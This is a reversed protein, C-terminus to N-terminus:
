SFLVWGPVPRTWDIREGNMEASARDFAVRRMRHVETLHADSVRAFGGAERLAAERAAYVREAPTACADCVDDDFYRVTAVEGCDCLSM